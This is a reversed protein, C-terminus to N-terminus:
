VPRYLWHQPNFNIEYEAAGFGGVAAFVDCEGELGNVGGEAREDLEEHLDWSGDKQGNRTFFVECDLRPQYGPAQGDIGAQSARPLKWTMGIGVTQGSKFMNTFDAGGFTNNVYRRGDDGHVGLSGRQWGPLRWSPYPPAVFGIAVGADAEEAPQSRFKNWKNHGQPV